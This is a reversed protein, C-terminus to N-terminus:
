KYNLKELFSCMVRNVEEPFDTHVNHSGESILHMEAEKLSALMEDQVEKPTIVDQGGAIVLAPCQVQKLWSLGEFRTYDDILAHFVSFPIQNVGEIYSNVDQEHSKEANFGLQSTLIFNFLSNKTLTKWLLSVTDPMLDFLLKSAVHVRNMRNTHFMQEFPNKVTGCIFVVAKFKHPDLVAARTLIGVGMSHGVGVVESIKLYSLLDQIDRACWELTLHQDNSPRGSFQHGRYDFLIVQHSKAFHALQHRWHERRCVLGYCMLLSRGQGYVEYYLNTKDRSQFVGRTHPVLSSLKHDGETKKQSAPMAFKPRSSKSSAAAPTPNYTVTIKNNKFIERWM